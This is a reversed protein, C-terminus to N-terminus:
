QIARPLDSQIYTLDDSPVVCSVGAETVDAVGNNGRAARATLRAYM